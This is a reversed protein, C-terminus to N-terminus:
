KLAFTVTVRAKVTIQGPAVTAGEALYGSGEEVMVNQSMGGYYRSGWGYGYWSLWANEEEVINTPEGLGQDLEGALAEAKERAAQIALARAQDRYKRLETTQFQVDHVYNAGAELAGSLLDEFKSLDGLTVVINKDVSYGTLREPGYGSYDYTPNIGIYDTQIHDDDIAYDQALKLVRQVIADNESKAVDLAVDKTGVGLTVVVEDPVVRVEADGTVTVVRAAAASPAGAAGYTVTGGDCAVLALSLVAVLVVGVTAPIAGIAAAYKKM